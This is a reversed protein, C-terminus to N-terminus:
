AHYDGWDSCQMNSVSILIVSPVCDLVSIIDILKIKSTHGLKEAWSPRLSM